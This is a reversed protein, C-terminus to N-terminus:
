GANPPSAPAPSAPAIRRGSVTRARIRVLQTPAGTVWTTLSLRDLRRTEMADRVRETMGEVIVSWGTHNATDIADVEFWAKTSRALASLKSGEGSRFVVSQSVADFVYNVPRIVPQPPTGILAVVRGVSGATVLELCEDRSLELLTMLPNGETM